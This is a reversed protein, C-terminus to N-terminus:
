KLRRIELSQAKKAKAYTENAEGTVNQEAWTQITLSVSPDTIEIIGERVGHNYQGDTSWQLTHTYHITQPETGRYDVQHVYLVHDRDNGQGSKLMTIIDGPKIDSLEVKVTNREDVFVPVNVNEITRFKRIINRILSAKPFHLHGKLSGGNTQLESELLYYVLGSCDIGLNNDVLFEKAQKSNLSSLDIKKKLALIQAEEAIEEASGKGISVRLGARLKARKNNFYPCQIRLDGVPIHKYSSILGLTRHSVTKSTIVDPDITQAISHCLENMNYADEMLQTSTQIRLLDSEDKTNTYPTVRLEMEELNKQLHTPNVDQKSQNRLVIQAGQSIRTLENTLSTELLASLHAEFITNTQQLQSEFTTSAPQRANIELLYVTNNPEILFDIGFLGKWGSTHMQAGVVEAIIHIQKVVEDDLKAGVAFDNGVTAFQKTTFPTLGTIQLSINGLTIAGETDVVVNLTYTPADIYKTVRVPREPFQEILEDLQKKDEILLTGSGTHARNFQVIFRDGWWEVEKMEHINHEPLYKTLEGLWEVQSIKEEIKNSLEASPNLLKWGQGACIREIKPTNKFVVIEPLGILGLFTDVKQHSLLEWTDLLRGEDILLVNDHGEAISKAFPTSNSIIFFGPTTVGLGLAREIDRTVYVINHGKLDIM